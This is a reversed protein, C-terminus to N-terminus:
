EIVEGDVEEGAKDVLTASPIEAMNGVEVNFDESAVTITYKTKGSGSGSCGVAAFVCLM